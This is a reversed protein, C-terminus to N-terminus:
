IEIMGSFQISILPMNVFYFGTLYVWTISRPARWSTISSTISTFPTLQANDFYWYSRLTCGGGSCLQCSRLESTRGADAFTSAYWKRSFPTYSAQTAGRLGALNDFLQGRLKRKLWTFWAFDCPPLDQSYPPHSIIEVCLQIHPVLQTDEARHAPANDQRLILNEM